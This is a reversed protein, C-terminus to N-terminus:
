SGRAFVDLLGQPIANVSVEKGNLKFQIERVM